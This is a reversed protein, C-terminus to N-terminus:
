RSGILLLSPIQLCVPRIAGGGACWLTVQLSDKGHLTRLFAVLATIDDDALEEPKIDSKSQCQAM